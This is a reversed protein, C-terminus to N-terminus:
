RPDAEPSTHAQPSAFGPEGPGPAPSPKGLLLAQPHDSLTQSLDGVQQTTRGVDSLTQNLRPLTTGQLTQGTALLLNAGASLQDLTGGPASLREAVAAFAQASLRAQNAADGAKQATTNLSTLTDRSTQALTPVLQRTQSTIHQLDQAALSLHGLTASVARQNDPSLLQNARQVSQELQGLLREGQDTLKSMFGPRFPIRALAEPPSPLAASGETPDDLQIFAQGTVGQQGLTAFTTTTIPAQEDVSVRVLVQGPAAPDLAIAQVRGVPVGRFRVLSQPLLGTVNVRGTLEYQRLARADRTLWSALGIVLATMALLFVGAALAHSKNEM